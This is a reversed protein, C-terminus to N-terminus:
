GKIFEYNGEGIHNILYNCDELTAEDILFRFINYENWDSANRDGNIAKEPNCFIIEAISFPADISGGHEFILEEDVIRFNSVISVGKLYGKQKYREIQADTTILWQCNYIKIQHVGRADIRTFPIHNIHNKSLVIGDFKTNQIRKVTEELM